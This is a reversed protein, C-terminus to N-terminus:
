PRPLTAPPQGELTGSHKRRLSAASHTDEPGASSVDAHEMQAAAAMAARGRSSSAELSCARDCKLSPM